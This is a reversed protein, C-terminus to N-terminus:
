VKIIKRSYENCVKTRFKDAVAIQYVHSAYVDEQLMAYAKPSLTNKADALKSILPISSHEKIATLLKASNKQFGLLRTYLVYDNRIYHALTDNRMDLMIHMMARSVRAYTFDKTKLLNCFGSLSEYHSFEKIIRDSLSDSVDIYNSFGNKRESLLKYGAIATFDDSVIPFATNLRQQLVSYASEPMHPAIASIDADTIMKDANLAQRISLASSLIPASGNSLTASCNAVTDNNTESLKDDLYHNGYRLLTYPKIASERSLLAKMYYIGLINNPQSITENIAEDNFHAILAAASAAPYTSGRKLEVKLITQYSLPEELLVEAIERLSNVDGCESGFCIADIIGLKDLMSVAGMAFHEANGLAYYHPLELVADAGNCLAAEVRAYKDICAPEGRQVFDGSMIVVAFDAGTLEKAKEIHFRHGNHFPNYEAIIGVTKM